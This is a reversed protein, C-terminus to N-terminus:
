PIFILNGGIANLLSSKGCGVPGILCVLEGKKACIDIENLTICEKITVDNKEVFGWSFDGKIQLSFEANKEENKIGRQM